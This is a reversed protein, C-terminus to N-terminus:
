ENRLRRRPKLPRYTPEDSPQVAIAQQCQPCLRNQRRDWSEFVDDCRLCVTRGAYPTPKIPRSWHAMQSRQGVIGHTPRGQDREMAEM